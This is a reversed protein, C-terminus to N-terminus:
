DKRERGKWEGVMLVWMSEMGILKISSNYCLVM